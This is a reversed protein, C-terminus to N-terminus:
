PTDVGGPHGVISSEDRVVFFGSSLVPTVSSTLIMHVTGSSSPPYGIVPLTSLFKFFRGLTM